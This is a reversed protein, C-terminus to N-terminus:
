VKNAKVLAAQLSQVFAESTYTAGSISTSTRARAQLAQQRLLPLAQQMIFLSRDTHYPFSGGIDVIKRTVRKVGKVVTTTKRVTVTIQM